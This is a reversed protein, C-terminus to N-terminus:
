EKVQIVVLLFYIGLREGIRTAHFGAALDAPWDVEGKVVVGFSLELIGPFQDM